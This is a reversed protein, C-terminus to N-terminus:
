LADLQALVKGVADRGAASLPAQPPLPDGVDYGQQQLGGKICAALNYRAFVENIAWLPRQLDMAAAWDGARCLEYLRVSQRPVLCAPGAMWGKGGILMVATTIHSSAAFVDLQGQVRNLVSLLRGTNTSADKLAVINPVRSLRAISDLSLPAKQFSPNTYLVVPLSVAGAIASFYAVVAADDLPFYADLIALIGDAGAAECARAQRVADSTACSAVGAIVPVRGAAAAVTAQVMALRQGPQLYAFEGTSGLPALGHVGAAVLDDVLRTLVSTNIEGAATLPTVLYPMVGHWGPDLRGSM